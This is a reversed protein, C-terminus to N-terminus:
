RVQDVDLPLQELYRYSVKVRELAAAKSVQPDDIDESAVSLLATAVKMRATERDVAVRSYNDAIEQYHMTRVQPRSPSQHFPRILPWPERLEARVALRKQAEAISLMIRQAARDTMATALIRAEAELM